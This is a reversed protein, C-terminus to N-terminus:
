VFKVMEKFEKIRVEAKYPDTSFSGEPVNYNNPDYGWNFQASDLKTEDISYHDYTPLLHVHTVGMESIHDIGTAVSKPGVTGAEVLGLGYGSRTAEMDINKKFIKKSLKAKRNIQLKQM